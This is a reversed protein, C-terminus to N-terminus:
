RSRLFAGLKCRQYALSVSGVDESDAVSNTMRFTVSHIMKQYRKVLNEFAELDGQQSKVIWAREDDLDVM